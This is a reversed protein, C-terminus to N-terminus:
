LFPFFPIHIMLIVAHLIIPDNRLFIELCEVIVFFIYIIKCFTRAWTPLEFLIHLLLFFRLATLLNVLFGVHFSYIPFVGEYPGMELHCHFPRSPWPTLTINTSFRPLYIRLNKCTEILLNHSAPNVMFFTILSDELPLLFNKLVDLISMCRTSLCHLNSDQYM